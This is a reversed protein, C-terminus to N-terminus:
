KTLVAKFNYAEPPVANVLRMTDGDNLEGFYFRVLEEEGPIPAVEEFALGLNTAAERVLHAKSTHATIM